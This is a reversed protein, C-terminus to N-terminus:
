RVERAVPACIQQAEAVIARPDRKAIAITAELSELEDEVLEAEVLAPVRFIRSEERIERAVAARVDHAEADIPNPYREAIAVAAKLGRPEDESPEGEVLAPAHVLM